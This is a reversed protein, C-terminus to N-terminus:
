NRDDCNATLSVDDIQLLSDNDMVHQARSSCGNKGRTRGCYTYICRHHSYTCVHRAYLLVARLLGCAAADVDDNCVRVVGVAVPPPAARRHPMCPPVGTGADSSTGRRERKREGLRRRGGKRERLRDDQGMGAASSRRRCRAQAPHNTKCVPARIGRWTRVRTRFM